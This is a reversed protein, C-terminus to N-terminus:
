DHKLGSVEEIAWSTIERDLKMMLGMYQEEVTELEENRTWSGIARESIPKLVVERTTTSVLANEARLGQVEM